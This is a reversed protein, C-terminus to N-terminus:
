ADGAKAWEPLRKGVFATTGEVGEDSQVAQSFAEAAEDLLQELPQHGVAQIIKKTVRNANPACSRLEALTDRLKREVAEDDDCVFHVLGLRYAEAGNFRTGLLALRRAQTLGIRQVVFAAIQAPPIGLGSEPLGFQAKRHCIAVDSVCALGFGGGLVAGELVAVVVVPCANVRTILEGFRRNLRYFAQSDESVAQRAQSMDKIDGGACFNAAAGRLIVARINADDEIAAFVELLEDVMTMNMANRANPRNLTVTLVQAEFGLKLTNLKESQTTKLLEVLKTM